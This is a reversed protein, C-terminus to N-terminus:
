EHPYKDTTSVTVLGVNSLDAEVSLGLNYFHSAWYVAIKVGETMNGYGLTRLIKRENETFNFLMAQKDNPSTVEKGRLKAEGTNPM